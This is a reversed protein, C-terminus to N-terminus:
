KRLEGKSNFNKAGKFYHRFDKWRPPKRIDATYGAPVVRTVIEGIKFTNNNPNYLHDRIAELGGLDGSIAAGTARGTTRGTTRAKPKELEKPPAKFETPIGFLSSTSTGHAEHLADLLKM